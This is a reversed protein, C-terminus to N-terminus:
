DAPVRGQSLVVTSHVDRKSDKGDDAHFPTGGTICEYALVGLSWWDVPFHHGTGNIVEPAMYDPTGCLTFTKSVVVKAFGMDTLKAYGSSDILVNEPKLDRYVIGREHLHTLAAATCACYFASSARSLKGSRKILAFLEGGQVLELAMCLHTSTQWAAYMKPILHYNINSLVFKENEIHVSQELEEVLDKRVCKIACVIRERQGHTYALRVSSFAGVGLTCDLKLDMPNLRLMSAAQHQSECRLLAAQASGAVYSLLAAPMVLCVVESSRAMTSSKFPVGDTLVEAGVCAGTTKLIRSDQPLNVALSGARANMPSLSAMNSSVSPRRGIIPSHGNTQSNLIEQPMNKSAVFSNERRRQTTQGANTKVCKGTGLCCEIFANGLASSPASKTPLMGAISKRALVTKVEVEGHFLILAEDGFQGQRTIQRGEAYARVSVENAFALREQRTLLGLPRSISLVYYKCVNQAAEVFSATCLLKDCPMRVAKVESQATCHMMSRHPRSLNHLLAVEVGIADGATLDLTVDDAACLKAIGDVILYICRIEEDFVCMSEGPGFTVLKAHSMIADRQANTLQGFLRMNSNLTSQLLSQTALAAGHHRQLLKATKGDIIWCRGPATCIVKSGFKSLFIVSLEGFTDGVNYTRNELGSTFQFYTGHEVVVFCPHSDEGVITEGSVYGYPKFRHVIGEVSKQVGAFLPSTLVAQRLLAQASSIMQATKPKMAPLVEGFQITNATVVGARRFKRAFSDQNDDEIALTKNNFSGNQPGLIQLPNSRPSATLRLGLTHSPRKSAPSKECLHM